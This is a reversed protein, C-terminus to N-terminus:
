TQLHYVEPLHRYDEAFDLGYGVLFGEAIMCGAYDVQIDNQRREKKDILACIRISKPKHIRIHEILYALSLGTDIIDEVIIVDKNGVDIEIDKTLQIAGSTQTGVGYSALRVFDVKAPITLRRVLDALFIFAGKLVGILILDCNDYDSSIKQALDAVAKDIDAKKLVPILNPM